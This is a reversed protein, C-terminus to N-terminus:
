FEHHIFKRPIRPYGEEMYKCGQCFSIKFSHTVKDFSFFLLMWSIVDLCIRWFFGGFLGHLTAGYIYIIRCYRTKM